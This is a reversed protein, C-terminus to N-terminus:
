KESQFLSGDFKMSLSRETPSDITHCTLVRNLTDYSFVGNTVSLRPKGEFAHYETFITDACLQIVQATNLYESGSLKESLLLLYLRKIPDIAYISQIRESWGWKQARFQSLGKWMVLSYASSSTILSNIYFTYFSLEGNESEQCDMRDFRKPNIQYANVLEVLMDLTSDAVIYRSEEDIDDTPIDEMNSLNREVTAIILNTDLSSAKGKTLGTNRTQNCAGFLTLLLLFYLTQKM